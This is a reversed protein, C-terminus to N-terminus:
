QRDHTPRRQREHGRSSGCRQGTSTHHTTQRHVVAWILCRLAVCIAGHPHAVTTPSNITGCNLAQEGPNSSRPLLVQLQPDVTTPRRHRPFELRRIHGAIASEWADATLIDNNIGKTGGDSVVLTMQSRAPNSCSCSSLFSTAVDCCMPSHSRNRGGRERRRHQNGHRFHFRLKSGITV